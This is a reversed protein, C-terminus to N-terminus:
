ETRFNYQFNVRFSRSSWSYQNNTYSNSNIIERDSQRSNFLDRVNMSVRIQGDLFEKSIGTGVFASGANRGQTTQQAGRYFLYSQLNWTDLFRWRIRLRSTFSESESSYLEGEFEGDRNSRFLNLSGSLQLGEFLDQDASFEIGWAEETALNIPRRTTFGDSDVTYVREIVGTRHRYYISSLVSGSNWRRLYGLEYSNGFEPELNPNGARRNRSDRIETFPLLMRSWPRSIRRSYSLQLSNQESITYSIFLSPFLNVYNQRSGEGTQELETQIRTNEVRVGTQYSFSGTEGSYIAYLANVNEFYMFNDSLGFGNEPSIWNGNRFVEALYDNDQWDFNFRFGTEFRGAEGLPREYDLDFRFERYIEDSFTRQDIFDSTGTLVTGTQEVTEHESGFEFDADATLRHNDGDFKNEYQLRIDFDSERANELNRRDSQQMVEWDNFVTRYVGPELPNYDTYFLDSDEQGNELSIRSAVTLVQNAPLYFDAGFYADGEREREIVDQTERFVYTTDGNFSQFTSGSEPEREYEFDLNLFWNVNNVHYNLNTSIGHDHPYGTNVRVNGTFGLTVEDILIINIIGGTGEANYRASPNTIVEIEDIMSAPISSLGDTGGRVLNSPRGNILIQVGQNGRLSVNGEFDTTVSPVNDLVDLASGGLSTIDSGVNFVRSDFNMEMYSREGEVLIEDLEAESQQLTISGLDITENPLVEIDFQQTVYSIFSIQLMYEGPAVTVIFEGSENTSTGEVMSEDEPHLVAVSANPVGDGDTNVVFGTIDGTGTDSQASLSSFTLSYTTILILVQILLSGMSSILEAASINFYSKVNPSRNPL